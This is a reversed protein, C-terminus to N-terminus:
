TRSPVLHKEDLTREETSSWMPHLHQSLEFTTGNDGDLFLYCLGWDNPISIRAARKPKVVMKGEECSVLITEVSGELVKLEVDKRLIASRWEARDGGYWSLLLKGQTEFTGGEVKTLVKKYHEKVAQTQVGDVDINELRKLSGGAEAVMGAEIELQYARVLFPVFQRPPLVQKNEMSLVYVLYQYERFKDGEAAYYNKWLIHVFFEEYITTGESSELGQIRIRAIENQGKELNSRIGEMEKRFESSITYPTHLSHGFSHLPKEPKSYTFYQRQPLKSEVVPYGNLTAPKYSTNTLVEVFAAEVRSNVNSGLIRIDTVHGNTNVKFDYYVWGTTDDVGLPWDLDPVELRESFVYEDALCQQSLIISFILFGIVSKM